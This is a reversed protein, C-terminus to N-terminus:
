PTQRLYRRQLERPDFYNSQRGIINNRNTDRAVSRAQAVTLSTLETGVGDVTMSSGKEQTPRIPMSHAYSNGNLNKQVYGFCEKGRFVRSYMFNKAGPSTPVYVVFGSSELELAYSLLVDDNIM